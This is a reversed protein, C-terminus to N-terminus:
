FNNFYASHASFIAALAILASEVSQGVRFLLANADYERVALTMFHWRRLVMGALKGTMIGNGDDGIEEFCCWRNRLCPNVRSQSKFFM